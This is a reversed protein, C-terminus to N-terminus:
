YINSACRFCTIGFQNLNQGGLLLLLQHKIQRLSNVRFNNSCIIFCFVYIVVIFHSMTRVHFSSFNWEHIDEDEVDELVECSCLDGLMDTVCKAQKLTVSSIEVKTEKM